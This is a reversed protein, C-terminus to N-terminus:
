VDAAPMEKSLFEVVDYESSWVSHNDSVHYYNDRPDANKGMARCKFCISQVAGGKWSSKFGVLFKFYSWDGRLETCAFGRGSPILPEGARKSNLPQGDPGHTPHAGFFAINLSWVIRKLVCNLTKRGLLFQEDISFLLWRSHRISRPRWLPLSLFLGFVKEAPQFAMQRAKAGDGYLGVPIHRNSADSTQLWPSGVARHHRWYADVSSESVDLGVDSFLHSLIEHPDRVELDVYEFGDPHKPNKIPARM